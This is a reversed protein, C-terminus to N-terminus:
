APDVRMTTGHAPEDVMEQAYGSRRYKSLFEADVADDSGATATLVVEKEAGDAEIWAHGTVRVHRYWAGREGKWSRVFLEDGIRVVWIPVTTAATRDERLATIRIEDPAGFADLEEPTWSM